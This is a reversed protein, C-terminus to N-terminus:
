RILLQRVASLGPAVENGSERANGVSLKVRKKGGSAVDATFDETGDIFRLHKSINRKVNLVDDHYREAQNGEAGPILM